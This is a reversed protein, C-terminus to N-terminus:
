RQMLDGVFNDQPGNNANAAVKRARIAKGVATVVGDEFSVVDLINLLAEKNMGRLERRYLVPYNTHMTGGDGDLDFFRDRAGIEDVLLHLSDAQDQIKQKTEHVMEQLAKLSTSYSPKQFSLVATDIREHLSKKLEDIGVAVRKMEDQVLQRLFNSEAANRLIRRSLQDKASHLEASLVDIEKKQEESLAKLAFNEAHIRITEKRESSDLFHFFAEITERSKTSDSRVTRMAELISGLSVDHQDMKAHIANIKKDRHYSSSSEVQQTSAQRSLNHGAFSVAEHMELTQRYLEEERNLNLLAAELAKPLKPRASQAGISPLSSNQAKTSGGKPPARAPARSSGPKEAPIKPLM